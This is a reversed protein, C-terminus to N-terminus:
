GLKNIRRIHREDGNFPTALWEDTVLIADAVSIFRAGIALVNADNHQRGLKIIDFGHLHNDRMTDTTEVNGYWITTRIGPFRNAAIAEGQGSGGFIVGFSGPNETVSRALPTVFDPYDDVPNLEFAGIDTVDHDSKILHKKLAEKHHFGAHDTALFIKM